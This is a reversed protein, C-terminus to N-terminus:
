ALEFEKKQDEFEQLNKQDILNKSSDTFKSVHLVKLESISVCFNKFDKLDSFIRWSDDRMAYAGRIRMFDVMKLHDIDIKDVMLYDNLRFLMSSSKGSLKHIRFLLEKNNIVMNAGQKGLKMLIQISQYDSFVFSFIELVIYKNMKISKNRGIRLFSPPPLKKSPKMEM